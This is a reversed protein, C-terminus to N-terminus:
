STGTTLEARSGEAERQQEAAAERTKIASIAARRKTKTKQMKISLIQKCETPTLGKEPALSIPIEEPLRIIM